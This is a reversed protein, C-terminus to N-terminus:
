GLAINVALLLVGFFYILVLVDRIQRLLKNTEHNM